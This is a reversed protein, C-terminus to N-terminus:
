ETIQGTSLLSQIHAAVNIAIDTQIAPIDAIQLDYNESWIHRDLGADTLQLNILVNDQMMMFSGELVFDANVKRAIEIAPLISGRFQGSSDCPVLQLNNIRILRDYIERAIGDTLFLNEQDATLNKFPLVIISKETDRIFKETEKGLNYKFYVIHFLVLLLITGAATFALARNINVSPIKGKTGTASHEFGPRPETLGYKLVEGPTFGFYKHFCYSFYAPSGFGVQYAIESAHGARQLLLEMARKLRIELIFQSTNQNRIIRLRRAIIYNSVGSKRALDGVGFNENQLNAIVIATLNGIFAQDGQFSGIM